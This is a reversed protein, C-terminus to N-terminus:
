EASTKERPGFVDRLDLCGPAWVMEHQFAATRAAPAPFYRGTAKSLVKGAADEVWGEAELIRREGTVRARALYPREPTLPAQFRIGFDVAFFAQRRAVIAAWTMLEDLVTAIIGGHVVQSWGVHAPRPRFEMEVVDGALYLAARLGEPNSEGCVFCSKSWPLRTRAPDTM